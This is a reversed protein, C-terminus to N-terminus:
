ELGITRDASLLNTHDTLGAPLLTDTIKVPVLLTIPLILTPLSGCLMVVNIYLM